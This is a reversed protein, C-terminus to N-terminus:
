NSFQNKTRKYCRRKSTAQWQCKKSQTNEAQTKRFNFAVTKFFAHIGM